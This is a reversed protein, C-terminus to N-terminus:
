LRRSAGMTNEIICRIAAMVENYAKSMGKVRSCDIHVIECVVDLVPCVQRNDIPGREGPKVRYCEPNAVSATAAVVV